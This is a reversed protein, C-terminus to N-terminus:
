VSCLKRVFRENYVIVTCLLFYMDMLRQWGLAVLPHVNFALIGLSMNVSGVAM